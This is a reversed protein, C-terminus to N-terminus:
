DVTEDGADDVAEVSSETGEGIESESAEESVRVTSSWSEEDESYSHRLVTWAHALINRACHFCIWQEALPFDATWRRAACCPGVEYNCYICQTNEIRTYRSACRMCVASTTFKCLAESSRGGELNVPPTM